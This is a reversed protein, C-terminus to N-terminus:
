SREFMTHLTTVGDGTSRVTLVALDGAEEVSWRAWACCQTEVAGLARLEAAVGREARFSIRLGDVTELREVLATRLLEDWRAAQLSLDAPGLTCAIPCATTTEDYSAM